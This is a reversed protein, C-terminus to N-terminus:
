NLDEQGKKTKLIRVKTTKGDKELFKYGVRGEGNKGVVKVISIHIPANFELRQGPQDGRKKVHKVAKNVGEVVVKELKPFVQVVKGTKGKDKGAIIKVNDGTKVKM